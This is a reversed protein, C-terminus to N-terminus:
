RAESLSAPRVEVIDGDVELKARAIAEVTAPARDPLAMLAALESATWVRGRSASTRAVAAADREEPVFWLTVDLWPVRVELCQGERAFRDLPMALIETLDIVPGASVRDAVTAPELSEALAALAAALGTVPRRRAAPVAVFRRCSNRRRRAQKKARKWFV